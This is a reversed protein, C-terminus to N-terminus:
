PLVQGRLREFGLGGHEPVGPRFCPLLRTRSPRGRHHHVALRGRDQVAGLACFAEAGISAQSLRKGEIYWTHYVRGTLLFSSDWVSLPVSGSPSLPCPFRTGAIKKRVSAPPSGTRAHNFPRGEDWSLFRIPSSMLVSSNPQGM